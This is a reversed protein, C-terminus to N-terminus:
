PIAAFDQSKTLAPPWTFSNLSAMVPDHERWDMQAGRGSERRGRGEVLADHGFHTRPLPGAQAATMM